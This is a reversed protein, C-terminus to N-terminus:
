EKRKRDKTSLLTHSLSIHWDGCDRGRLMQGGRLCRVHSRGKSTRRNNKLLGAPTNYLMNRVKNQYTNCFQKWLQLVNSFM